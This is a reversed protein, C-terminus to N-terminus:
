SKSNRSRAQLRAMSIARLEKLKQHIDVGGFISELILQDIENLLQEITGQSANSLSTGLRSLSNWQVVNFVPLPLRRVHAAEVKLAGGGMVTATLELASTCWSSNLVALLASATVNTNGEVWVTVFNADILAARKTNLFTKPHGHNVRAMFVDPRHRPMFTPLMYWFRPVSTPKRRNVPRANPAVASLDPIRVSHYKNDVVTNAAVRVLKALGEPMPRYMNGSVKGGVSSCRKLDEPLAYEQLSLVRGKLSTVKIRFGAPLESQKRLVARVCGEPVHVRGIGFIASPAIVEGNRTDGIKSAYFFQNAGTRLGQGARVGIKEFLTFSVRGSSTGLWASLPPPLLAAHDVDQPPENGELAELWQHDLCAQYTNRAFDNLGVWETDVLETDPKTKNETWKEILRVFEKEPHDAKPFLRGVVSRDDAVRGSLRVRLYREDKWQFATSRRPIREAVLLTTRVLAEPFWVADKDEIVYRIRFWRLLLYRITLAYDRSLWTDPVVMALTGGERVLAACLIWSPVALDSLGSYNSSLVKLLRRDDGNLNLIDLAALLSNRVELAGPLSSESGVSRALSQYRVYPPNTICLDWLLTPLSQLTHADFASGHIVTASPEGATVLRAVSLSHAIPDIEMAGIQAPRAGEKLCALLMDAQGAMPDIISSAKEAGALAALFRALPIGTFYQGRRKRLILEAASNNTEAAGVLKM